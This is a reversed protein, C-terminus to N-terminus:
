RALTCCYFVAYKVEVENSVKAVFHATVRIAAHFALAKTNVSFFVPFRIISSSTQVPITCDTVMLIAPIKRRDRLKSEM